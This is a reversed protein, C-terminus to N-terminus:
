CVKVILINRVADAKSTGEAVVEFEVLGHNLLRVPISALQSEGSRVNVERVGSSGEGEVEEVVEYDESEALTVRVQPFNGKARFNKSVRYKKSPNKKQM